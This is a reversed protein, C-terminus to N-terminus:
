FDYGTVYNYADNQHRVIYKIADVCHLTARLKSVTVTRQAVAPYPKMALGLNACTCGDRIRFALRTTRRPRPSVACGHFPPAPLRTFRAYRRTSTQSGVAPRLVGAIGVVSEKAFSTKTLCNKRLDLKKNDCM